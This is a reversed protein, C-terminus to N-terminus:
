LHLAWDECGLQCVLQANPIESCEDCAVTAQLVQWKCKGILIRLSTGFGNKMEGKKLNGIHTKQLSRRYLM